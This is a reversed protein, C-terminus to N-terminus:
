GIHPNAEISIPRSTTLRHHRIKRSSFDLSRDTDVTYAPPIERLELMIKTNHPLPAPRLLCAQYTRPLLTKRHREKIM